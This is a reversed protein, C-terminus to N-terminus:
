TQTDDEDDGYDGKAIALLEELSADALDDQPSLENEKYTRLSKTLLELARLENISLPQRSSTDNLRELERVFIDKLAKM